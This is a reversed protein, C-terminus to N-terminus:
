WVSVFLFPQLFYQFGHFLDGVEPPPDTADVLRLCIMYLGAFMPGALVGLSVVSLMVAVFHTAVLLVFNNKYLNIGRAVWAGVRVESTPM